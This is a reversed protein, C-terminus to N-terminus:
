RGTDLDLVALSTFSECGDSQKRQWDQGRSSSCVSDYPCLRCNSGRDDLYDDSGPVAPFVGHSLGDAIRSIGDELRADNAPTDDPLDIRDFEGRSTIFWYAAQSVVDAGLGGRVARSYVSLQLKTGAAISDPSLKPYYSSLGTKYDFVQARQGDASVDVRDIRGRLRVRGAPVEIDVAPWGQDSYGFPVEFHTPALGTARRQATDHFLFTRLDALLERRTAAWVLPHGTVGATEASTIWERAIAGLRAVDDATYAEAVRPRGQSRLESFFQQLVDHILTGKKGADITWTDAPTETPEVRLVSNLFFQFPCTAWRELTTPSLSRSGDLFQGLQVASSAITGLNGDYETFRSSRRARAMLLGRRLALDNRHALPHEAVDRRAGLWVLADAVRREDVDMPTRSRAIGDLSSAVIRLWPHNAESLGRFRGADLPTDDTLRSAIELLWRSPFAPRGALSEPASLTLRGGDSAALAALFAHRDAERARARRQLPDDEEEPFFPDARPPPPFTGETLGLIHVHDLALGVASQVPGVLVGAGLQGEPVSRELLTAELAAIFEAARLPRPTPFRDAEALGALTQGILEAAREHPSPWTGRLSAFNHRLREGWEAFTSWSSGDSPPQVSDALSAVITGIRRAGDARHRLADVWAVSTEPRANAAQDDSESAFRELRQRWQDVGRVVNAERTIRDWEASHINAQLAGHPLCTLWALVSERSLGSEITKLAALLARGPPTEALPRGELASWPLAAGTLTERVLAAYPDFQRYLLAMRHLPVGQELRLVVRRIAERVEEAPDPARVIHVEAHFSLGSADQSPAPRQLGSQRLLEAARHTEADGLGHPDGPASLAVHIPVHPDLANLLRADASDMRTPLYVIVPGIDRLAAPGMGAEVLESAHQRILTPDSFPELLSRFDSYTRAAERVVDTSSPWNAVEGDPLELRRIERFLELLERYLAYHHGLSRLEGGCREVATRVAGLELAPTVLELEGPGGCLALALEVLRVSHLNVYGQTRGVHRRVFRGLTYNPVVLTVPQLPAVLKLEAVLRTLWALADAGPRVFEVQM